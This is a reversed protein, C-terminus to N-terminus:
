GTLREALQRVHAGLSGGGRVGGRLPSPSQRRQRDDVRVLMEPVENEPRMGPEDILRHDREAVAVVGGDPAAIEGVVVAAVRAGEVDDSRRRRPRTSGLRDWRRSASPARSPQAARGGWRWPRGPRTRGRPRSRPAPWAPSRGAPSSRGAFGFAAARRCSARRPAGPEISQGRQRRPKARSSLCLSWNSRCDGQHCKSAAASSARSKGAVVMMTLWVPRGASRLTSPSAPQRRAM